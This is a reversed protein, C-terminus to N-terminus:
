VMAGAGAIADRQSFSHDERYAASEAVNVQQTMIIAVVLLIAELGFVVSYALLYNTRDILLVLDVLVGAFLSGLSRGAVMAFGWVGLLVGARLTTTFHIMNALLGAGALGTGFGMIMVLTRFLGVSQTAGSVIVGGFVVITMMLGVRLINVHGLWKILALASVLMAGMVGLGWFTTLRSTSEVDMGLVLAGYPELLVDQALTGIVVFLILVFFRQVQRDSLAIERLIQTFPKDANPTAPSQRRQEIRFVAILALVFSVVSVAITVSVLRSSSYDRLGSAVGGAGMVLGLLTVVEFLTMARARQIDTFSDAILAHFSNHALNRGIEHILFALMVGVALVVVSNIGVLLLIALIVGVGALATGALIYPERYLGLMPHTDSRHGMWARLPAIFLPAAFFLGVLSIPLGIEAVMIRNLTGGTLAGTLGYGLVFAAMRVANLRRLWINM